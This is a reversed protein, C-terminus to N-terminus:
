SQGQVGSYAPQVSRAKAFPLGSQKADSEAKFAPEPAKARPSNIPAAEKM